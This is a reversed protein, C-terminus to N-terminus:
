GARYRWFRRAMAAPEPTRCWHRGTTGLAVLSSCESTALGARFRYSTGITPDGVSRNLRIRVTQRFSATGPDRCSLPDASTDAVHDSEEPQEM